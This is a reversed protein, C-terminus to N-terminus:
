MLMPFYSWPLFTEHWEFQLFKLVCRVMRPLLSQMNELDLALLTSQKNQQVQVCVIEKAYPSNADDM